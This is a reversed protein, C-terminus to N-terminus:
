LDQTLFHTSWCNLGHTFVYGIPNDLFCTGTYSIRIHEAPIVPPHRSPWPAPLPPGHHRSPLPRSQPSTARCHKVLKPAEVEGETTKNKEKLIWGQLKQSFKPNTKERPCHAWDKVDGKINGLTPDLPGLRNRSLDLVFVAKFCHSCDVLFFPLLNNRWYIHLAWPNNNFCDRRNQHSGTPRGLSAKHRLLDTSDIVLKALGCLLSINACHGGVLMVM